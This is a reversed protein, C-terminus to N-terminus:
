SLMDDEKDNSYGAIANDETEDDCGEEGLRLSWKGDGDGDADTEDDGIRRGTVSVSDDATVCLFTFSVFFFDIM